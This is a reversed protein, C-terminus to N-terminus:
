GAEESRAVHHQLEPSLVEDAAQNRLGVPPLGPDYLHQRHLVILLAEVQESRPRHIGRLCRQDDGRRAIGVEPHPHMRRPVREYHAALREPRSPPDLAVPMRDIGKRDVAREQSEGHRGALPVHADV